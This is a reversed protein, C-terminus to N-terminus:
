ANTFDVELVALEGAAATTRWVGQGTCDITDTSDDANECAGLYEGAGAVARVWLRDDPDCGSECVVWIRGKRLVNMIAGPLLGTM